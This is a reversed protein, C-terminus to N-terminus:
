VSRGRRWCRRAGAPPPQSAFCPQVKWAPWKRFTPVHTTLPAVFFSEHSLFGARFCFRQVQCRFRLALAVQFISFSRRRVRAGATCQEEEKEQDKTRPWQTAKKFTAGADAEEGEARANRRTEKVLYSSLSRFDQLFRVLGCGNPGENWGVQVLSHREFIQWPRQACFVNGWSGPDKCM